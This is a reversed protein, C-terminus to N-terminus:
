FSQGLSIYTQFRSGYAADLRIPGIPSLFRLGIGFSSRLGSLSLDTEPKWANGVETFVVGQLGNGMPVRVETTALFMRDGRVSFLDYGRLMDFGGLFFQESLPM